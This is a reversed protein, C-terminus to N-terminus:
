GNLDARRLAAAGLADIRCLNRDGTGAMDLRGNTQDEEKDKMRPEKKGARQVLRKEL